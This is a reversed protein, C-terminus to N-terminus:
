RDLQVFVQGQQVQVPYPRLPVAPATLCHGSDLEFQFGHYPCTLINGEIEGGDIPVGLHSCANQFCQVAEGQRSLLLKHGEQKIALTGQDPIEALSTVLRWEPEPATTVDDPSVAIAKYAVEIVHEIEPCHRKIATEVAESMTLQSAPCHSCTGTLKVEVTDPLRIAVLEIDGEHGQLGPRVEALAQQLRHQLPQQTLQQTPQESPPAKVLDHYRLLGYVVEDQVAQRLAPMAEQKVSRILRMLAEKHLAEIAEKLQVVVQTQRDDWQNVIAEVRQIEGVLDSLSSSTLPSSAVPTEAASGHSTVNPPAQVM